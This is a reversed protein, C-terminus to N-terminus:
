ADGGAAEAIDRRTKMKKLHELPSPPNRHFSQVWAAATEADIYNFIEQVPDSETRRGNWRDANEYNKM